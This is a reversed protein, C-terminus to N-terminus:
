PSESTAASALPTLALAEAPEDLRAERQGAEVDVMWLLIGGVVFFGIVGLIAGRSSGTGWNIAAFLAPGLIGAFKEAVSFFGFYEGSRDRPILSAFMSRSLAQTGGQVTGVLISLLLFHGATTMFYGIVCIVTYVALGWLISVKVGIRSAIAGFLFSFPIGVFQVILISRILDEQKIGIESGYVVAMRMITGIGDNYILFALLMLFGNRYRKLDRATNSLRELTARVPSEGHLEEAPHVARPEPVRRFLPISFLGWWAAVSLFALRAGLTSGPDTPLGFLGPRVIWALNLALLVGGGLYGLAYGATSVRDIEEDSAIHPLLADYFVFSGNAGINALIFLASALVWDGTRIFFMGAVAALGLTLFLGLLRKKQATYDAFAGLVPSLAAIFVMGITTAVALMRSAVAPELGACAVSSYYTPFVATIITCVMASNAWDYLAWARLEPRDLGLSRLWGRRRESGALDQM